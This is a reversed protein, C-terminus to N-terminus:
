NELSPKLKSAFDNLTLCTNEMKFNSNRIANMAVERCTNSIDSGSYGRSAHALIKIEEADIKTPMNKLYNQWIEIRQEENPLPVHFKEDFRGPRLIAEDISEIRNTALSSPNFFVPLYYSGKKQIM